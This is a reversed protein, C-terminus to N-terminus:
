KTINLYLIYVFLKILEIDNKVYMNFKPIHYFTQDECKNSLLDDILIHPKNTEFFLKLDKCDTKIDHRYKKEIFYKDIDLNNIINDAYEKTGRTLLYLNNFKSVTKLFIYLGTRPYIIYKETEVKNKRTNLLNIDSYKDKKCSHILTEDLDFVLNLRTKTDYSKYYTIGTLGTICTSFILTGKIISKIAFFM